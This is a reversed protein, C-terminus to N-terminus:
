MDYCASQVKNMMGVFMCAGTEVDTELDNSAKFRSLMEYCTM